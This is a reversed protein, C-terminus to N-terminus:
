NGNRWGKLWEIWIQYFRIGRYRVASQVPSRCLSLSDCQERSQAGIIYIPSPEAFSKFYLKPVWYEAIHVMVEKM